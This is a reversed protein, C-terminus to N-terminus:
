GARRVEITREDDSDGFGITVEIRRTPLVGAVVDGWEVAVVADAMLEDLALDALEGTREIRYVDVHILPVRGRYTHMLTFTPSTVPETVELGEALGQVFATKGAGLAGSVLVLDGAGVERGLARGLARTEDPARTIV